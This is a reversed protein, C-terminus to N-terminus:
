RSCHAQVLASDLAAIGVEQFQGGNVERLLDAAYREILSTWNM